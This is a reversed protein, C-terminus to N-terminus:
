FAFNHQWLGESLWVSINIYKLIIHLVSFCVYLDVSARLGTYNRARAHARTRAHARARTHTHSSLTRIGYLQSVNPAREAVDSFSIKIYVCKVISVLIKLECMKAQSKWHLIGCFCTIDSLSILQYYILFLKTYCIQCGKQLLFPFCSEILYPTKGM